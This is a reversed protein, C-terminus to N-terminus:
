SVLAQSRPCTSVQECITQSNQEHPMLRVVEVIEEWILPVPVDVRAGFHEAVQPVPVDM